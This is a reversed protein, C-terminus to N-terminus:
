ARAYINQSLRNIHILDAMILRIVERPPSDVAFVPQLTKPEARQALVLRGGYAGALSGTSLTDRPSVQSPASRLDFSAVFALLCCGVTRCNRREDEQEKRIPVKFM